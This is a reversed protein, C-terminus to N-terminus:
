FLPVKCQLFVVTQEFLHHVSELFLLICFRNESFLTLCTINQTPFALSRQYNTIVSNKVYPPTHCCQNRFPISMTRFHTTIIVEIGENVTGWSILFTHLRPYLLVQWGLAQQLSLDSRSGQWDVIFSIHLLSICSKYYTYIQLMIHWPHCKCLLNM